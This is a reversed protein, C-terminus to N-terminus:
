KSAKKKIYNSEHGRILLLLQSAASQTRSCSRQVSLWWDAMGQRNVIIVPMLIIIIV